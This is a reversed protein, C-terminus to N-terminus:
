APPGGPPPQDPPSPAPVGNRPPLTIVPGNLAGTADLNIAPEAPAEEPRQRHLLEYVADLDGETAELLEMAAAFDDAEARELEEAVDVDLIGEDVLMKIATQRSVLKAAYLKTVVEIVAARDTPLFSGFKVTAPLVDGALYGASLSMRQAFKLLLPYKENRVLRMEEILSRMPGFSLALHIGSRDQSAEVRGVVEAPVRVNENLRDRLSTVYAMCAQLGPSLDLVSLSGTPGLGIVSGAKVKLDAAAIGAAGVMPVAALKAADAADTDAWALDELIQAVATLLAEGFHEKVEVTNPLHVVPLFDIGLDLLQVEVPGAPSPQLAFSEVRPLPFHEVDFGGLNSLLWTGDTMYCTTSTAETNWALRRKQADPLDGLEWTIRRVKRVPRTPDTRDEFEWAVHVRRPFEDEAANPDIEPFYFGADFLRLRVRKKDPSTGLVYVGDGIKQADRETEMVKARFREADAWADFWAQREVAASNEDDDSGEVAIGIDDGLLAALVVKVLLAADGYERHKARDKEDVVDIFERGCNRYIAYLVKYAALRREHDPGVWTPAAWGRATGTTSALPTIGAKFSLASWADLLLQRASPM